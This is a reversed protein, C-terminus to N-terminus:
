GGGKARRVAADTACRTVALGAAIAMGHEGLDPARRRYRALETAVIAWLATATPVGWVKAIEVLEAAEHPRFMTRVPVTRVWPRPPSPQAGPDLELDDQSM